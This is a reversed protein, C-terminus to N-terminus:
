VEFINIFCIINDWGLYKNCLFLFPFSTPPRDRKVKNLDDYLAKLNHKQFNFNKTM